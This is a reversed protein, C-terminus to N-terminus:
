PTVTGLVQLAASVNAPLNAVGSANGFVVIPARMARGVTITSGGPGIVLNGKINGGQGAPGTGKAPQAFLGIDRGVKISAGNALTLSQGINFANLDQGVVVGPGGNFFAENYVDLTNLSGSVNISAGPEINYFAIRNVNTPAYNPNNVLLQGSLTATRYGEIMGVQGNVVTINRVMLVGNNNVTGVPFQHATGKRQNHSEPDITVETDVNTGYLYIDVQGNPAPRARATGGGTVHVVYLEGDVDWIAAARGGNAVGVHVAHASLSHGARAQVMAARRLAAPSVGGASLLFRSELRGNADWSPRFARRDARRGKERDRSM